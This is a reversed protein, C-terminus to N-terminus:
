KLYIFYSHYQFHEINSIHVLLEFITNAVHQINVEAKPAYLVCSFFNFQKTLKKSM